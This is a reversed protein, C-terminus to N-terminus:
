CIKDVNLPLNFGQIALVGLNGLRDDKMALLLYGHIFKGSVLDLPLGKQRLAALPYYQWYNM